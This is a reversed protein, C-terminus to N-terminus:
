SSSLAPFVPWSELFVSCESGEISLYAINARRASATVDANSLGALKLCACTYGRGDNDPHVAANALKVRAPLALISVDSHAIGPAQLLTCM